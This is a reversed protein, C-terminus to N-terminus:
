AEDGAWSIARMWGVWLLNADTVTPETGGRGYCVPGPRSGASQPGVRLRGSDDIAAISGGGSGITRIEIMPLRVPLQDIEGQTMQIISGNAVVCIDYSTGGMDVGLLNPRSLVGAM